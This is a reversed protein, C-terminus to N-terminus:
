RALAFVQRCPELPVEGPHATRVAERASDLAAESLAEIVLLAAFSRDGTRMAKENTAIDTGGRDVKLLRVSVVEDLAAIRDLTERAVDADALRVPLVFGGEGPGTEAIVSGGGRLFNKLIPMIRRSWETPANLRALYAASALVGAGALRYLILYRRVDPLEARFVRVALFGPVSLREAAHERTLWHLYDTEEEPSVDSFIALFGDAM